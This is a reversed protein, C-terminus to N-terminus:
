LPPKKDWINIRTKRKVGLALNLDPDDLIDWLRGIIRAAPQERRSVVRNVARLAFAFVTDDGREIATQASPTSVFARITNITRDDPLQKTSSLNDWLTDQSKRLVFHILQQYNM